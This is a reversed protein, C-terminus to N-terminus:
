PRLDIPQRRHDGHRILIGLEKEYNSKVWPYHDDAVRQWQPRSASRWPDLAIGTEFPQGMATIVLANNEWVTKAHAEGWHFEFHNWPLNALASFIDETYHYCFGRGKLDARILVNNLFATGFIRYENSLEYIRQTIVKSLIDAEARESDTGALGPLAMVSSKFAVVYNWFKIDEDLSDIRKAAARESPSLRIKADREHERIKNINTRAAIDSLEAEYRELVAEAPVAFDGKSITYEPLRYAASISPLLILSALILFASSTARMSMM